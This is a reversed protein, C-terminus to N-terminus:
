LSNLRCPIPLTDIAVERSLYGVCVYCQVCTFGVQNLKKFEVLQAFVHELVHKASRQEQALKGTVGLINGCERVYYELDEDSGLIICLNYWCNIYCHQEHVYYCIVNLCQTCPQALIVM